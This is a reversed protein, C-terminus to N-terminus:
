QGFRERYTKEHPPTTSTSTCGPTKGAQGMVLQSATWPAMGYRLLYVFVKADDKSSFWQVTSYWCGVGPRYAKLRVMYGELYPKVSYVEIREKDSMFGLLWRRPGWPLLFSGKSDTGAFSGSTPLPLLVNVKGLTRASALGSM